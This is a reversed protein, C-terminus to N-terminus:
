WLGFCAGCIYLDGSETKPTLNNYNWGCVWNNQCTMVIGGCHTETNSFICGAAPPTNSPLGFSLGSAVSCFTEGGATTCNSVPNAGYYADQPDGNAWTQVDPSSAWLAQPTNSGAPIAEITIGKVISQVVVFQTAPCGGFFSYCGVNTEWLVNNNGDFVELNGGADMLAYCSTGRNYTGTAWVAGSRNANNMDNYLVLNCDSQMILLNHGDQSMIYDNSNGYLLDHSSDGAILRTGKYDGLATRESALIITPIALGLWLLSGFRRYRSTFMQIDGKVSGYHRGMLHM